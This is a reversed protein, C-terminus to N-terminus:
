LFKQKTLKYQQWSQVVFSHPQIAIHIRYFNFVGVNKCHHSSARRSVRRKTFIFQHYCAFRTHLASKSEENEEMKSIAGYFFSFMKKFLTIQKESFNTFNQLYFNAWTTTVVMTNLHTLNNPSRLWVLQDLFGYLKLLSHFTMPYFNFQNRFWRSPGNISVYIKRM